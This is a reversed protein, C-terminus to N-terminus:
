LRRQNRCAYFCWWIAAHKCANMCQIFYNFSEMTSQQMAESHYLTIILWRVLQLTIILWHVSYSYNTSVGWYTSRHHSTITINNTKTMQKFKNNLLLVIYYNSSPNSLYIFSRVYYFYYEGVHLLSFLLLMIRHM